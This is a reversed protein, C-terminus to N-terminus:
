QNEGRQLAPAVDDKVSNLVAQRGTELAGATLLLAQRVDARAQELEAQRQSEKVMWGTVFALSVVAAAAMWWTSRGKRRPSAGASMLPVVEGGAPVDGSTQEFIEALRERPLELQPLSRLRQQIAELHALEDRCIACTAIHARLSDRESRDMLEEDLLMAIGNKKSCNEPTMTM